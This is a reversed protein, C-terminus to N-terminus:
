DELWKRKRLASDTKKLKELAKIQRKKVVNNTNEDCPMSERVDLFSKHKRQM